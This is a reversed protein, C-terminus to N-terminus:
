VWNETKLEPIRSFERLNNSVLILGLHLAHAAILSDFDGIPKGAKRLRFRIRAGDDAAKVPFPLARIYELFVDVRKHFEAPRSSMEAGERLELATIVSVALRDPGLAQMREVVSAPRKRMLYSCINTDLLHTVGPM